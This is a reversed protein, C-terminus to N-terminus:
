RTRTEHQTPATGNPVTTAQGSRCRGPTGGRGASPAQRIREATRRGGASWRNKLGYFFSVPITGVFSPPNRASMVSWDFYYRALTAKAHAQMGKPSVATFSMGTPLMLGKQGGGVVTDIAWEDMRFDLSGLSSITDVLLLAPHGAKDLAARVEPLPVIMGTATENHVVCVAKISMRRTRPWRRKVASIDVGRRWDSAVTRVEIKLARAM